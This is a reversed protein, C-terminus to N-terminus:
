LSEFSVAKNQNCALQDVVLVFSLILCCHFYSLKQNWERLELFPGAQVGLFCLEAVGAQFVLQDVGLNVWCIQDVLQPVEGMVSVIFANLIIAM